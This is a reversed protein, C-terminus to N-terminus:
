YSSSDLKQKSNEKMREFESEISIFRDKFIYFLEESIEEYTTIELLEKINKNNLGRMEISKILNKRINKDEEEKLKKIIFQCIDEESEVREVRKLIESLYYNPIKNFEEENIFNEINEGIMKIEEIMNEIKGDYKIQLILYQIVNEENVKKEKKWEEILAKNDLATSMQYFFKPNIKGGKFFEEINEINQNISLTIEKLTPNEQIALFFQHSFAVALSKNISFTKNQCVINIKENSDYTMLRNFTEPLEMM